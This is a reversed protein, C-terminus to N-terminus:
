LTRIKDMLNNRLSGSLPIPKGGIVVYGNAVEDLRSVNIIYSRHTRVFTKLSLKEEIAKLTLCLLFEKTTTFIRSYNRDAEIYLIDEVMIKIMREHHRVFIRDNLIVPTGITSFDDAFDEEDYAMKCIALEITRQLELKKFPKSIFAAPKVEKARNFTAEDSNATLFIIATESIKQLQKATEIGDMEGKLHIDMLTLDPKNVKVHTIVEEGRSLIGTVGYGLEKLQMSTKAAIIMEDEVILIKILNGM